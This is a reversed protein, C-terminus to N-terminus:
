KIIEVFGKPSGKLLFVTKDAEGNETFSTIGTVGRVNGMEILAKRFDDHSVPERAMIHFVILATDYVVAEVYGPKGEYAALYREVFRKVQPESSAEFFGEPIVAYQLYQGALSVLKDSNWLNTGALVTENVDYFHLQPLILGVTEASDPIFICEIGSKREDGDPEAKKTVAQQNSESIIKKIQTGFDTTKPTYSVSAVVSSGHKKVELEFLKAMDRGYPEDPYLVAFREINLLGAVHDVVSKVQIDRTLFHRFVFNGLETVGERGTLTIIPIKHIQAEKAAEEAPGVPGIIVSVGLDALERVALRTKEPDSCTDKYIVQYDEGRGNARFTLLALDVGKRASEGYPAYAGTLPLLCGVRKVNYSRSSFLSSFFSKEDAFGSVPSLYVVCSLVFLMLAKVLLPLVRATNKKKNM